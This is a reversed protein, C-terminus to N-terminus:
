WMLSSPSFVCMLTCSVLKRHQLVDNSFRPKSLYYVWVSMLLAEIHWWWLHNLNLIRCILWFFFSQPVGINEILSRKVTGIGVSLSLLSPRLFFWIRWFVPVLLTPYNCFSHLNEESFWTFISEFETSMTYQWIARCLCYRGVEIFM